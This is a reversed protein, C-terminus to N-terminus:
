VEICYTKPITDFKGVFMLRPNNIAWINKYCPGVYNLDEKQVIKEDIFPYHKDYGICFIVADVEIKDGTSIEATSGIFSKVTGNYLKYVGSNEFEKLDPSDEILPNSRGVCFVQKAKCDWDHPDRLLFNLM